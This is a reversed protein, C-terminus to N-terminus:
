EEPGAAAIRQIRNGPGVLVVRPMHKRAEAEEMQAFTAVIM